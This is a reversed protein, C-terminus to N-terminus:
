GAGAQLSRMRFVQKTRQRGVYTHWSGQLMYYAAMFAQFINRLEQLTGLFSKFYGETVPQWMKIM